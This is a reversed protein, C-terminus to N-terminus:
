LSILVMACFAAQHIRPMSYKEEINLCQGFAARPQGVLWMEGIKRNSCTAHSCCEVNSPPQEALTTLVATSPLNNWCCVCNAMDAMHKCSQQGVQGANLCFHILHLLVQGEINMRQPNHWVGCHSKIVLAKQDVEIAISLHTHALCM